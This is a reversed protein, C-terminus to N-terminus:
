FLLFIITWSISQYAEIIESELPYNIFKDGTKKDLKSKLDMIKEYSSKLYSRDDYLQYLRYNLEYGYKREPTEKM